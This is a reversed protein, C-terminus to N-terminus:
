DWRQSNDDTLEAAPEPIVCFPMGAPDRMVQWFHAQGVRQAGLQELRAVEATLDDTHIDLHVRPPGDGLRQILLWFEQGPLAAGHYEPHGDLQSLPQGTAAQWFALERDHEAAPVDIVIKLLRSRHAM